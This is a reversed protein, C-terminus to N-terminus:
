LLYKAHYDAQEVVQKEIVLTGESSQYVFQGESLKVIHEPKFWVTYTKQKKERMEDELVEDADDWESSMSPEASIAQATRAISAKNGYRIYIAERFPNVHAGRSVLDTTLGVSKVKPQKLTLDVVKYRSRSEFPTANLFRSAEAATENYRNMEEILAKLIDFNFNNFSSAFVGVSKAHDKNKLNDATYEAVFSPDLGAYSLRYFFRGPRNKMQEVVRYVDNVTVVFLKKTPFIGDFLTLLGQQGEQNYVKEFEDFLLMAPQDIAQILSNFGDGHFPSGVVLTSVGMARLKESIRKALLTKGSGKEGELLVGTSTSRDLFTRIIRDARKDVDGYVKTGAQLDDLTDLYFGSPDVKVCYTGPALKDSFSPIYQTLRIQSQHRVFFMKQTM